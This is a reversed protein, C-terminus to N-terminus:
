DKQLATAGDPAALYDLMAGWEDKTLHARNKHRGFADELQARSHSRPEPPAHCKGCARTHLAAIPTADPSSVSEAKGSAPACATALLACAAAVPAIATALWGGRAAALRLAGTRIV